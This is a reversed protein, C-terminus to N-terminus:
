GAAARALEGLYHAWGHHHDAAAAPPLQSHRLVLRTGGAEPALTVEVRTSRPPVGHQEGEWGFLLVLREFPTLEVYSGSMVPGEPGMVVRCVGGPRPDLEAEAGWWECMRAPDVWFEWVTAPAAAIFVDFDLAPAPAPRSDTM